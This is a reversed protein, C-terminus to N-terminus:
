DTLGFEELTAEWADDPNDFLAPTETSGAGKSYGSTAAERLRSTNNNSSRVGNGNHIQGGMSTYVEKIHEDVSVGPVAQIRKAILSGMAEAFGPLRASPYKLEGFANLTEAFKSYRQILHQQFQQRQTEAQTTTQQEAAQKRENKLSEIEDRLAKFENSETTAKSEQLDQPRLKEVRMLQQIIEKNPTKLFYEGIAIGRRIGEAVSLPKQELAWREAMTRGDAGKIAGVESVINSIPGIQAYAEQLKQTEQHMFKTNDEERKRIKAKINAPLTEWEKAAEPDKGWSQPMQEDKPRAAEKEKEEAYKDVKFEDGDDDADAEQKAPASKKKEPKTEAPKEKGSEVAARAESVVSDFAADFDEDLTLDEQELEKQEDAM